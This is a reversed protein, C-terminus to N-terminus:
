VKNLHQTISDSLPKTISYYVDILRGNEDLVYKQFNWKVSSNKLGNKKEDTLWQYLPHQNDGKVEIKETLLFTVGFNVSCFEHIEEPTGPEQKGFQNCPLGIVTLQDQYTEHLKQLDAYQPTFGCESAVNVFLIKKGKFKKLDIPNGNLDNITFASDYISPQNEIQKKPKTYAYVLYILLVLGGILFLTKLM